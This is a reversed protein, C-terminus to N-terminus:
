RCQLIGSSPKLLDRLQENYIEMFAAKVFYQEPRNTMEEWLNSVGRQILGDFEDSIFAREGLREEEIGAM